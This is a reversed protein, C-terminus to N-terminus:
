WSAPLGAELRGTLAFVQPSSSHVLVCVILLCELEFEAVILGLYRACGDAKPVEAAGVVPAAVLVVASGDLSGVWFLSWVLVVMEVM